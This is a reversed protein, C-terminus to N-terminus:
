LWHEELTMAWALTRCGSIHQYCCKLLTEFCWALVQPVDRGSSPSSAELRAPILQLLGSNPILLHFLPRQWWGPQSSTSLRCAQKLDKVVARHLARWPSKQTVGRVEPLRQHSEHRPPTSPYLDAYLAPQKLRQFLPLFRRRHSVGRHQTLHESVRMQLTELFGGAPAPEWLRLLLWSHRPPCMGVCASVGIDGGVGQAAQEFPEMTTWVGCSPSTKLLAPKARFILLGKLHWSGWHPQTHGSAVLLAM